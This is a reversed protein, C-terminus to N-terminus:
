NPSQLLRMKANAAAGRDCTVTKSCAGSRGLQIIVAHAFDVAKAQYVEAQEVVLEKARLLGEPVAAIERRPTKYARDLVCVTEMLTVTSIFGRAEATFSEILKTAAAAQMPDDQTLYRVLVNTDLGV